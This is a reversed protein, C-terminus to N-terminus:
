KAKEPNSWGGYGYREEKTKKRQLDTEVDRGACKSCSHKPM